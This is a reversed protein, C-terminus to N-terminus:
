FSGSQGFLATTDISNVYTRNGRFGFIPKRKSGVSKSYFEVEVSIELNFNSDFKYNISTPAYGNIRHTASTVDMVKTIESNVAAHFVPSFLAQNVSFLQNILNRIYNIYGMRGSGQISPGTLTVAGVPGYGFFNEFLAPHDRDIKLNFTMSLKGTSSQISPEIIAVQQPRALVIRQQFKEQPVIINVKRDILTFRDALFAHCSTPIGLNVFMKDRGPAYSVYSSPNQKYYLAAYKNDSSFSLSLSFDKGRRSISSSKKILALPVYGQTFGVGPRLTRMAAPDMSNILIHVFKTAKKILGNTPSAANAFSAFDIVGAKSGLTSDFRNFDGTQFSIVKVKADYTVDFVGKSKKAQMVEDSEYGFNINPNTTYKVSHVLSPGELIATITKETPIPRLSYDSTSNTYHSFYTAADSETKRLRLFKHYKNLFDSCRDYSRKVNSYINGAGQVDAGVYPEIQTYFKSLLTEYDGEGEMKTEESIDVFGEPSVSLNYSHDFCYFQNYGTYYTKSRTFSYSNALLDVTESHTMRGTHQTFFNNNFYFGEGTFLKAINLFTSYSILGASILNAADRLYKSQIVSDVSDGTVPFLTFNVSHSFKGEGGDGEDFNFAESFDKIAAGSTELIQPMLYSFDTGGTYNHFRTYDDTKEEFEVSMNFKSFRINESLDTAESPFSMSKIRYNFKGSSAISKIRDELVSSLKGDVFEADFIHGEFDFLYTNGFSFSDNLFKRSVDMGLNTIYIKDGTPLGSTLLDPISLM